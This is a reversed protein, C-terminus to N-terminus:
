QSSDMEREFTTWERGPTFELVLRDTFIKALYKFPQNNLLRGEFVLEKRSSDLYVKGKIIDGGEKSVEWDHVFSGDQRIELNDVQRGSM